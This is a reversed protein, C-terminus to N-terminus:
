GGNRQEFNKRPPLCESHSSSGDRMRMRAGPPIRELNAKGKERRKKGKVGKETGDKTQAEKLVSKEGARQLNQSKGGRGGGGHLCTIDNRPKEQNKQTRGKRGLSVGRKTGTINLEYRALSLKRPVRKGQYLQFRRTVYRTMTCLHEAHTRKWKLKLSKIFITTLGEKKVFRQSCFKKGTGRM